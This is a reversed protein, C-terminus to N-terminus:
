VRATDGHAGDREARKALVCWGALAARGAEIEDEVRGRCAQRVLQWRQRRPQETWARDTVVEGIRQMLRAEHAPRALVAGAGGVVAEAHEDLLGGLGEVEPVANTRVGRGHQRGQAAADM